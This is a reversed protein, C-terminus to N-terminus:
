YFPTSINTDLHTASYLMFMGFIALALTAGLLIWDLSRLYGALSFGLPQRRERAHSFVNLPPSM